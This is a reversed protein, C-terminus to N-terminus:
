YSKSQLPLFLHNSHNIGTLASATYGRIILTSANNRDLSVLTLSLLQFQITCVTSSYCAAPLFLEVIRNINTCFIPSCCAALLLCNLMELPLVSYHNTCTKLMLRSLDLIFSCWLYTFHWM